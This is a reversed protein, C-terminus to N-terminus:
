NPPNGLRTNKEFKMLQLAVLSVLCYSAFYYFGSELNSEINNNAKSSLFAILIGMVFVDAMSWKHIHSILNHIRFQNSLSKILLVILIVIGKSIPIIVSFILILTAVFVNDSEYLTDITQFISRTEEFLTINGGFMKMSSSITLAPKTLGPYLLLFSLIILSVAIKNRFYM